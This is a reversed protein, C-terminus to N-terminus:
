LLDKLAQKYGNEILVKQTAYLYESNKLGECYKMSKEEIDKEDLSIQKSTRKMTEYLKLFSENAYRMVLHKPENGMETYRLIEGKIINVTADIEEISILIHTNM